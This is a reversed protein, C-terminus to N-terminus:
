QRRSKSILATVVASVVGVATVIGLIMVGCIDMKKAIATMAGSVAFSVTGICEFILLLTESMTNVENMM